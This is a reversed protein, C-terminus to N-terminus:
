PALPTTNLQLTAQAQRRCVGPALRGILAFVESNRDKLWQGHGWGKILEDRMMLPVWFSPADPTTGIFDRATVCFLQQMLALISAGKPVSAVVWTCILASCQSTITLSSRVLSINMVKPFDRTMM